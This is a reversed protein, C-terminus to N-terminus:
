AAFCKRSQKYQTGRFHSGVSKRTDQPSHEHFGRGKPKEKVLFPTMQSMASPSSSPSHSLHTGAREALALKVSADISGDRNRLDSHYAPGSCIHLGIKAGDEPAYAPVRVGFM